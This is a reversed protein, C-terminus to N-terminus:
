RTRARPPPRPPPRQPQAQAHATVGAVGLALASLLPLLRTTLTKRTSLTM